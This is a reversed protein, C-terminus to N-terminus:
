NKDNHVLEIKRKLSLSNSVVFLSSLSMAAGAIIPNLLGLAAFPIGIINYIFAWFLNQKIKKMTHKSLLIATIITELNDSMLAIDGSEIAIDSGTGIAIGIDAMALAPADNIGDGVMAVIKNQLKFENVKNSKDEPMVQSIIKEEEIGVQKGISYATQKRDGTIMYIDIGLSKLKSIVALSENKITDTIGIIAVVKENISVFVATKGLSELKLIESQIPLLNCGNAELLKTNGVVLCKGHITGSVGRGPFVQFDNCQLLELKLSKAKEIISDGLPHESQSELSATYLLIEEDSYNSYNLIDTVEPKGNTITGTKDLIITDIKHAIELSTGSKILIGNQAGIGTSIMIATPTALGLACPCSIVLVSVAAIFASTINGTILFWTFFSIIAIGVVIPVFLASIKDALRQVPPLNSQAEEVVRIINALVTKKGIGKALFNFSGYKNITGAYVKDNIQKQVPFSEGTLMSEDITSNGSIIKGDVPIREGPRVIIENNIQVLEIPIDLVQSDTKIRATRPQLGMLKKISDSTKSKVRTELYKGLLILTILIGSAEFYLEPHHGHPVMKFFGNYLSFFYAASTGMVILLDMGPSKVKLSFYASKYFKWGIIFQIPTTFAFQLWANHLIPANIKFIMSIMALLLPFSLIISVILKKKLKELEDINKSKIEDEIVLEAKYGIDTIISIIQHIKIVDEDYEISAIETSLNIKTKLIKSNADLSKKIANVCNVCSMGNIKLKLVKIQANKAKYGMQEITQIIETQSIQSTDYDLMVYNAPLNVDANRIGQIKNLGKEVALACNACSM